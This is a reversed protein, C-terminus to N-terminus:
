IMFSRAKSSDSSDIGGILLEEAKGEGRVFSLPHLPHEKCILEQNVFETL